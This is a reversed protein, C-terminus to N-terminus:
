AIQPGGMSKSRFLYTIASNTLVSGEHRPTVLVWSFCWKWVSPPKLNGHVFMVLFFDKCKPTDTRQHRSAVPKWRHTHTHAHTSGERKEGQRAGAATHHQLRGARDAESGAPLQLSFGDFFLLWPLLEHIRIHIHTRTRFQFGNSSFVCM